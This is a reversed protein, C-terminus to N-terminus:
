SKISENIMEKIKALETIDDDSTIDKAQIWGRNTTHVEHDETLTITGGDELHITIWSKPGKKAGAMNVMVMKDNGTTLDSGLVYITENRNFRDVIEMITQEGKDTLLVTDPHICGDWKVTTQQHGGSAQSRLAEVARKAGASAEWFVIDEAHQIRAAEVLLFPSIIDRHNM